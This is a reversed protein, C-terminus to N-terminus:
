GPIQDLGHGRERRQAKKKEKPIQVLENERWFDRTGQEFEVSTKNNVFINFNEFGM